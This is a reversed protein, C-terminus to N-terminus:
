LVAMLVCRVAIGLMPHMTTPVFDSFHRIVSTFETNGDIYHKVARDFDGKILLADGALAHLRAIGVGRVYEPADAACLSYLAIAEEHQGRASLEDV